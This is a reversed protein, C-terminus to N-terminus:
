PTDISYIKLIYGKKYKIIKKSIGIEFVEFFNALTTNFLKKQIYYDTLFKYFTKLSFYDTTKQRM